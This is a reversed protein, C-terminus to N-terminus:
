DLGVRVAQVNWIEECYERIARDSSFKGSRATNLISMRAWQEQDRWAEGVRAQCAVTLGFLFFNDAGRGRPDRHQRRRPHRHHARREPHVEHQRHGLGGQWRDLDARVPRLRPLHAPREQRQLQALVGGEAANRVDPDNNVVEAVATILKIMLKAM